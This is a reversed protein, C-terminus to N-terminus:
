EVLTGCKPCPKAPEVPRLAVVRATAENDDRWLALEDNAAALTAFLRHKPTRTENRILVAWAVAGAPNTPPTM